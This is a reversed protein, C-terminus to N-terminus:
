SFTLSRSCIATRKSVGIVDTWLFDRNQNYVDYKVGRQYLMSFMPNVGVRLQFKGFVINWKM